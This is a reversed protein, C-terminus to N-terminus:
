PCATLMCAGPLLQCNCGLLAGPGCNSQGGAIAATLIYLYTQHFYTILTIREYQVMPWSLTDSPGRDSATVGDVDEDEQRFGSGM